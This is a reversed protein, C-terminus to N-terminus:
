RGGRVFLPRLRRERRHRSDLWALDVQQVAVQVGAVGVGRVRPQTVVGRRIAVLGIADPRHRAILVDEVALLVRREVAAGVARAGVELVRGRHDVHVVRGMLALAMQDGALERGAGHLRDLVPDARDDGGQDVVHALVAAAVDDV